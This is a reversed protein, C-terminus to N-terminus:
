AEADTANAVVVQPFGKAVELVSQEGERGFLQNFLTSLVSVQISLAETANVSGILGDLGPLGSLGFGQALLPLDEYTGHASGKIKFQWKSGKLNQWVAAWTPDSSQDHPSPLDRAFFLFPKTITETLPVGHISGDLDAGGIFRKDAAISALAAAGGLSHGFIAVSTTDLKPIHAHHHSGKCAFQDLIFRIDDVRVNVATTLTAEDNTFNQGYQVSGDQFQEFSTQGPHDISVVNFGQAAINSLIIHYLQRSIGDGHSFFLLPHGKESRLPKCLSLTIQSITDRLPLDYTSEFYSEWYLATANPMYMQQVPECDSSSSTPSILSIPLKRVAAGTYPDTRGTDVFELNTISVGYPGKPQPVVLSSSATTALWLNLLQMTLNTPLCETM